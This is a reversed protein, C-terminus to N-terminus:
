EYRVRPDIIALLLDFGLNVSLILTAGVMVLGQVLPIDRQLVAHLLLQGLGPLAFVQEIVITGVLLQIIQIGAVTFVNVGANRLSHKFLVRRKSLGKSYATRIYDQGLTDLVSARVMRTLIAGRPLAVAIAPLTLSYLSSGIGETFPVYGSPPFFSYRVALLQILLIGMWFGPIAMGLQSFIIGAGDWWKGSNVACSVGLPIAILLALMVGLFALTLTVPLSQAILQGVSTNYRISRGWEGRFLGSLWGLYRHVPPKDLGLQVQLNALTQADAETGLVLVAPDGPLIQLTAFTIISIVFLTLTFSLAKRAYYKM